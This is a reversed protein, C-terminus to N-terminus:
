PRRPMSVQMCKVHVLMGRSFTSIARRTLREAAREGQGRLEPGHHLFRLLVPATVDKGKTPVGRCAFILPFGDLTTEDMSDIEDSVDMFIVPVVKVYCDGAEGLKLKERWLLTLELHLIELVFDVLTDIEDKCLHEVVDFDKNVPDSCDSCRSYGNGDNRANSRNLSPIPKQLCCAKCLDFNRRRKHVGQFGVLVVILFDSLNACLQDCLHAAFDKIRVETDFAKM